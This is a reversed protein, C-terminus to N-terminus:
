QRREPNDRRNPATGRQPCAGHALADGDVKSEVSCRQLIDTNDEAANFGSDGPEVVVNLSPVFRFGFDALSATAHQSSNVQTRALDPSRSREGDEEGGNADERASDTKCQKLGNPDEGVQAAPDSAAVELDHRSHHHEQKAPHGQCRHGNRQTAAVCTACILFTTASHVRSTYISLIESLYADAGTPGYGVPESHNFPARATM